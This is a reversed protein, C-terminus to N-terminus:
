APSSTASSKEVRVPEWAFRLVGPSNKAGAALKQEALAKNRSLDRNLNGTRFRLDEFYEADNLVARRGGQREWVQPMYLDDYGYHGAFDEDYMGYAKFNALQVLITNVHFPMSTGDIDTINKSKFYFMTMPDAQDLVRMVHALPEASLKQDIDFYLGWRGTANFTGLNRAGTQNWAIDTTIRFVKLDLSTPRFQAPQESGDDVLVFEVEALFDPPLSEWYTLQAAVMEPHNYYHSILSLRPM